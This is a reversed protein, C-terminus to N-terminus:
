HVLLKQPPRLDIQLIYMGHNLGTTPLIAAQNRNFYYEKVLTGQVTLIRIVSAPQNIQIQDGRRVPNPFINPYYGAKFTINIVASYDYVGDFDVQKIRYYLKQGLRPADLHRFVYENIQTSNGNGKITGLREFWMGDKSVEVEFYDNNIETATSWSILVNQNVKEAYLALWTVPLFNQYFTESECDQGPPEAGGPGCDIQGGPINTYGTGCVTIDASFPSGTNINEINGNKAYIYGNGTTGQTASSSEDSYNDNCLQIGAQDFINQGTTSKFGGNVIIFVGTSLTVLPGESLFGGNVVKVVSGSQNYTSSEKLLFGGSTMTFTSNVINIQATGFGEIKNSTTVTTGSVNLESNGSFSLDSSISIPHLINVIDGTNLSTPPVMNNVWNDGDSWNGTGGAITTYTAAMIYGFSTLLLVLPITFILKRYRM